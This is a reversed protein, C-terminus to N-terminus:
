NTGLQATKQDLVEALKDAGGTRLVQNYESRRVALESISRELLVDVIRWAGDREAMVGVSSSRRM